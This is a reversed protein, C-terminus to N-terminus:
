LEMIFSSIAFGNRLAYRLSGTNQSFPNFLLHFFPYFSVQSAIWHSIQECFVTFRQRIFFVSVVYFSIMRCYCEILCQFSSSQKNPMKAFSFAKRIKSREKKNNNDFVFKECHCSCYITAGLSEASCENAMTTSQSSIHVWYFKMMLTTDLALHVWGFHITHMQISLATVYPTNM